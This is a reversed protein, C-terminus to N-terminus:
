IEARDRKLLITKQDMKQRREPTKTANEFLPTGGVDLGTAPPGAPGERTTPPLLPDTGQEAGPSTKGRNGRQIKEKPPGTGHRVGRKKKGTGTKGM